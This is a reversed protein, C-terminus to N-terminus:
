PKKKPTKIVIKKAFFGDPNRVGEIAVSLNPKLDDMKLINGKEDVIKTSLSIFVRANNVVIFKFDKDFGEIIGSLSVIEEKKGQFGTLFILLVLMLILSKIFFVKRLKMKVEWRKFGISLEDIIINLVLVM